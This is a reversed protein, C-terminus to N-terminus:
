AAKRKLNYKRNWALRCVKCGRGGSNRFTNEPTYEHGQPCHTKFTQYLGANGRSINEQQTVAELHAPNCCARHECSPGGLCETDNHCSHDIQMGAPITGIALEYAMRHSETKGDRRGGRGFQGYGKTPDIYALWPWCQADSRVDVKKWFRAHIPTLTEPVM